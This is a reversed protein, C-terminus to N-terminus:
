ISLVVTIKGDDKTIRASDGLMGEVLDLAAEASNVEIMIANRDVDYYCNIISYTDDSWGVNLMSYENTKVVRKILEPMKKIFKPVSGYDQVIFKRGYSTRHWGYCFRIVAEDPELETGNINNEGGLPVQSDYHFLYNDAIGCLESFGGNYQRIVEEGSKAFLAHVRDEDWGQADMHRQVTEFDMEFNREKSQALYSYSLGGASSSWPHSDKMSVRKNIISSLVTLFQEIETLSGGDENLFKTMETFM